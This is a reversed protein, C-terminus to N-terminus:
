QIFIFVFARLALGGLAPAKRGLDDPKTLIYKDLIPVSTPNTPDIRFVDGSACRFLLINKNPPESDM